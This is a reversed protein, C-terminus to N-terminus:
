VTKKGKLVAEVSGDSRNRVWGSLNYKKATKATWHRYGVGQVIGYIRINVIVTDKNKNKNQLM